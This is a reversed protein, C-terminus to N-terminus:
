ICTLSRTDHFKQTKYMCRYDDEILFKELVQHGFHYCLKSSVGTCPEWQIIVRVNNEKLFSSMTSMAEM